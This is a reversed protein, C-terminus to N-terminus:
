LFSSPNMLIWTTSTNDFVFDYYGNALLEGGALAAGGNLVISTPGISNVDLTSAGSNANIIKVTIRTYAILSGSSTVINSLTVVYANSLGTDIAFTYSQNILSDAIVNNSPNLLIWVSSGNICMYTSGSVIAGAHAFTTGVGDSNNIIIPLPGLGNVDLTAFGVNDDNNTNTSDATFTVIQGPTYSTLSPNLPLTYVNPSTTSTSSYTFSQNQIQFPLVTVFPNQLIFSNLISCYILVADVAGDIDGLVLAGYLSSRIINIAGLGNVDLTPNTISNTNNPKLIVVLGDTYGSPAPSLTAIFATGDIGTDVSYNFSSQQIQTSTIGGGSSVTPNLIIWSTSTQDWVFDYYGNSLIEGGILASGGELTIPKAGTGIDLTSAGSNSNVCQVTIRTYAQINSSFNFSLNAITAIYANAAGSDVSFTYTQSLLSTSTVANSPNLLIWDGGTNVFYYINDLIIANALAFELGNSGYVLIGQAGTGNVNLTAFSGGTNNNTNTTDAMFSILQGPSSSVLAPTVNATYVNPSTTNSLGAYTFAGNQIQSETIGGSTITTSVLNWNTSGDFILTAFTGAVMEGGVLPSGLLTIPANGTGNFNLTAAGTNTTSPQFYIVTGALAPAAPQYFTGAANAVYVNLTGSDLYFQTGNQIVNRMYLGVTLPNILQWSAGTGDAQMFCPVNTAIDQAFTSGGNFSTVPLPSGGNLAVTANGSIGGNLPIFSLLMNPYPTTIAPTLAINYADAAGSDVGSNFANEQVQTPTAGSTSIASNLLIWSGNNNSMIASVASAVLEGGTLASGDPLIIPMLSGGNLSFTSAGTNTNAVNLTVILSGTSPILTPFLPMTAAYLNATGTDQLFITNGYSNGNSASLATSLSSVPNLLIFQSGADYYSFIADRDLAIDGIAIELGDMGVINVNGVGNVNLTPTNTSNDNAPKLIVILGDTYSVPAPSLTAVYAAGSVGTDTSYNFVSQQVQTSTVGGGFQAAFNAFTIAADNGSGYPFQGVYLLDTDANSTIPNATYVEFINESAM